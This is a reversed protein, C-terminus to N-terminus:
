TPRCKRRPLSPRGASGRPLDLRRSTPRSRRPRIADPRMSLAIAIAENGNAPSKVEYGAERFHVGLLDRTDEHDEVILIKRQLRPGSSETVV